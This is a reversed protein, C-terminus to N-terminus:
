LELVQVSHMAPVNLWPVPFDTQWVQGAFVYASWIPRVSHEGQVCHFMTDGPEKVGAGKGVVTMALPTDGTSQETSTRVFWDM